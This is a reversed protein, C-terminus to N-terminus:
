KCVVSLSSIKADHPNQNKKVAWVAAAFLNENVDTSDPSFVPRLRVACQGAQEACHLVQAKILPPYNNGGIADFLNKKLWEATKDTKVAALLSLGGKALEAEFKEWLVDEETPM